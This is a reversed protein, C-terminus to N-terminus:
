VQAAIIIFQEVPAQLAAPVSQAAQAGPSVAQGFRPHRFRLLSGALQPLQPLRHESGGTTPEPEGIQEFPVQSTVQL